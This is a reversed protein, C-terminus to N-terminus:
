AGPAPVYPVPPATRVTHALFQRTKAPDLADAALRRWVENFEAVEDANAITVEIAPTEVIVIPAEDPGRWDVIFFGCQTLATQPAETPLVQVTIYPSATADLLLHQSERVALPAAAPTWWLAAESLIVHYPAALGDRIRQGRELRAAVAADVDVLGGLNAAEICARAYDASHFPGTLLVPHYQRILRAQSDIDILERQRTELSGRQIDRYSTVGSEIAEALGLVRAREGPDTVGCVDLWTGIEALKPWLDGTEIRSIKSQTFPLRRALQYGSLGARSRIVRLQAGLRRRLGATRPDAVHDVM